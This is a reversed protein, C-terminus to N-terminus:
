GQQPGPTGRDTWRCPDGTKSAALPWDGSPRLPPLRQLQGGMTSSGGRHASGTRRFSERSPSQPAFCGRVSSVPHLVVASSPPLALGPPVPLWPAPFPVAPAVPSLVSPFPAVPSLLVLFALFPAFPSPVALVLFSLFPLVLFSLVRFPAHSLVHASTPQMAGASAGRMTSLAMKGSPGEVPVRVESSLGLAERAAGDAVDMALDLFPVLDVVLAVVAALTTASYTADVVSWDPRVDM